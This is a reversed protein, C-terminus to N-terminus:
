RWTLSGGPRLLIEEGECVPRESFEHSVVVEGGAGSVEFGGDQGVLCQRRHDTFQTDFIYVAELTGGASRRGEPDRITVEYSAVDAENRLTATGEDSAEGGRGALLGAAVLAVLPAALASDRRSSASSM